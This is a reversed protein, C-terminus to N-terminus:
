GRIAMYILWIGIILGFITMVEPAFLILNYWWYTTYNPNKWLDLLPYLVVSCIFTVVIFFIGIIFTKVRSIVYGIESSEM